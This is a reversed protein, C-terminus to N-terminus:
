ATVGTVEVDRNEAPIVECDGFDRLRTAVDDRQGSRVIVLYSRITM